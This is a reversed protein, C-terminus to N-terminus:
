FRASLSAPQNEYIYFSDIQPHARPLLDELTTETVEAFAFRMATSNELFGISVSVRSCVGLV